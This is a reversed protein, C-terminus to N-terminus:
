ERPSAKVVPNQLLRSQQSLEPERRPRTQQYLPVLAPNAKAAAASGGSQPHHRLLVSPRRRASARWGACRPPTPSCRDGTLRMGALGAVEAALAGPHGLAAATVSGGLTSLTGANQLSVGSNSANAGKEVAKVKGAVNVLNDLEAKLGPQQGFLISRGRDSMKAYNSVFNALSFAGAENANAAGATPQGM